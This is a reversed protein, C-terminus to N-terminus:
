INEAIYKKAGSYLIIMSIGSILMNIGILVGIVWIASLPLAFIILLALIFQMIAAFLGIIWKKTIKRNQISVALTNAGDFIFYIGIILTLLLMSIIPQASLYTGLIIMLISVMGSVWPTDLEKRLIISSILKHIGAVVLGISIVLTAALSMFQPMLIILIGLISLVIGEILLTYFFNKSPNM